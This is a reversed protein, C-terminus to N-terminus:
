ASRSHAIALSSAGLTAVLLVGVLIWGAVPLLGALGLLCVGVVTARGPSPEAGMLRRVREGILGALAPLGALVLGAVLVLAFVALPSQRVLVVVALLVAADLLGILFARRWTEELTRRVSGVHGPILAQGMLSWASLSGLLAVFLTGVLALQLLGRAAEPM